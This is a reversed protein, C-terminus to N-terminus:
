VQPLTEIFDHCNAAKAAWIIEENRANPKGLLINEKITIGFLIPEQSVVGINERFAKLHVNKLNEGDM